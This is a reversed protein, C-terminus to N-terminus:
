FEKGGRECGNGCIPFITAQWAASRPSCALKTANASNQQVNLTCTTRTRTDGRLVVQQYSEVKGFGGTVDSVAVPFDASLGASNKQQM